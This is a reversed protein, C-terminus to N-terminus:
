KIETRLPTSIKLAFKALYDNWAQSSQFQESKKWGFGAYYVLKNDIPTLHVFLHSKDTENVRYKEIGNTYKPDAVIALGLESDFHPAWYSFWGSKEDTNIEGESKRLALGVVLKDLEKDFRIEYRTLNSGADLSIKKIESTVIGGANWLAYKLEFSTRIPGTESTSFDTFNGSTFLSDSGWVGIGGCGRSSGVHFNDLGEGTDEHYSGTGESHKKYWKNIVPYEVRKLWCDIGSSMTGGSIGKKVLEEAKPGYMRFVVRDNEWTYDDVREPALRSYAVLDYQKVNEIDLEVMLRIEISSRAEIDPHFIIADEIGDKDEDILQSPLIEESDSEKIVLLIFEEQKITGLESKQITVAESKRPIDLDNHIIVTKQFPKQSCGVILAILSLLTFINKLEKM